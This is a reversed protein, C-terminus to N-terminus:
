GEPPVQGPAPAPATAPSAPAIKPTRPARPTKATKAAPRAAATKVKVAAALAADKRQVYAHRRKRKIVKNYQKGM